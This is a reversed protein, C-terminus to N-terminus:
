TLSGTPAEEQEASPPTPATTSDTASEMNVSSELTPVPQQRKKPQATTM